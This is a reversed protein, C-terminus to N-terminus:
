SQLAADLIADQNFPLRCLRLGTAAWLANAIAAITPAPSAEGAGLAPVDDPGLLDISIEPVEDFRLVPYSDWDHIERGGPGWTVHEHLAWSAGQLAGGELQAILGDRDIIRGADAVLRIHKLQVAGTDTVCLDVAVAVRTMANKYQAYAVGRGSGEPLAPSMSLTTQLGALVAKARPDSLANLRYSIPDHGAATALSDMMSELALVNAPAGLCRLASPRLPLTPVLAKVLRMDPIDYVPELNRHLGAHANLNPEPQFRPVDCDRAINSALRAPGARNPGARPRGRHTDGRAEMWIGHLTGNERVKGQISVRMATGLPERRHEDSRSYKLLIPTDPLACAILAAEFAADDACNHGYCGSGPVFELVVNGPPMGLSDAISDRLPYIGQSHTLIDLTDGKFEALAASPALSAHLTYPRDFSAEFDPDSLREPVALGPDPTGDQVAIRQANEQLMHAFIDGHVLDGDTAWSCVQALRAAAQVVQWELVGVVAVFSGDRIVKIGSTRLRTVLDADMKDLRADLRPPCIIRAHHLGPREVDHIYTYSGRVMKALGRPTNKPLPVTLTRFSADVNVRLDDPLQALLQTVPLRRNSGRYSLAGDDLALDNPECALIRGAQKMIADRATACALRQAQGSQEISNSGSTIGEDPSDDTRVPAVEIAEFPLALEEAAIRILATSIGQGIDVKGTRLVVKDTTARLWDRVLPHAALSM